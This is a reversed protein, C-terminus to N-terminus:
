HIVDRGQQRGNETMRRGWGWGVRETSLAEHSYTQRDTQRDGEEKAGRTKRRRKKKSIERGEGANRQERTENM